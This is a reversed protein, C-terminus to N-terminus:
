KPFLFGNDLRHRDCKLLTTTEKNTEMSKKALKENEKSTEKSTKKTVLLSFTLSNLQLNRENSKLM